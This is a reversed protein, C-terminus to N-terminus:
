EYYFLDINPCEIRDLKFLKDQEFEFIEMFEILLEDEMSRIDLKNLGCNSLGAHLEKSMKSPLYTTKITVRNTSKTVSM